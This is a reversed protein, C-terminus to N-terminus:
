DYMVGVVVVWDNGVIVVVVVMWNGVVVGM